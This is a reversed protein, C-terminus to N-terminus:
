PGRPDPKGSEPKDGPLVKRQERRRASVAGTGFFTGPTCALSKRGEHRRPPTADQTGTSPRAVQPVTRYQTERKVSVNRELVAGQTETKFNTTVREGPKHQSVQVHRSAEGWTGGADTGRRPDHGRGSGDWTDRVEGGNNKYQARRSQKEQSRRDLASRRDTSGCSACRGGQGQPADVAREGPAGGVRMEPCRAPGTSLLTKTHDGKERARASESTDVGAASSGLAM